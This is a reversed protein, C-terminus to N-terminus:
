GLIYYVDTSVTVTSLTTVSYRSGALVPVATGGNVSLDCATLIELLDWGDVDIDGAAGTNGQADSDDYLPMTQIITGNGHSESMNEHKM